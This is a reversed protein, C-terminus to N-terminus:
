VRHNSSSRRTFGDVTAVARDPTADNRSQAPIPRGSRGPTDTGFCFFTPSDLSSSRVHIRAACRLPGRSKAITHNSNPVATRTDSADFSSRSSTTICSRDPSSCTRYPLPPFGRSTGTLASM